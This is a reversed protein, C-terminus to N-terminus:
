VDVLLVLFLCDIWKCCTIGFHCPAHTQVVGALFGGNEDLKLMGDKRLDRCKDLFWCPERCDKDLKGVLLTLQPWVSRHWQWLGVLDEEDNEVQALSLRSLQTSTTSIKKVCHLYSLWLIFPFMHFFWQKAIVGYMNLSKTQVFYTPWRSSGHFMHLIKVKRWIVGQWQSSESHYFHRPQLCRPLAAAAM